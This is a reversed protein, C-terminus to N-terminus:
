NNLLKLIKDALELASSKEVGMYRWDGMICDAIRERLEKNPKSDALPKIPKHCIPCTGGSISTDECKCDGTSSQPKDCMPCTAYVGGLMKKFDPFNSELKVKMGCEACILKDTGIHFPRPDVCNCYVEGTSAQATYTNPKGTYGDMYAKIKAELAEVRQTLTQKM